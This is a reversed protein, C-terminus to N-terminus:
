SRLSKRTKRKLLRSLKYPIGYLNKLMEFSTRISDTTDTTTALGMRLVFWTRPPLILVGCSSDSGRIVFWSGALCIVAEWFSDPDWRVLWPSGHHVLSRFGSKKTKRKINKIKQVHNQAVGWFITPWIRPTKLKPPVRAQTVEGLQGGGFGVTPDALASALGMPLVANSLWCHHGGLPVKSLNSNCRGQSKQKNRIQKQFSTGNKRLM